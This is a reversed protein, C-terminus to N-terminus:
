SAEEADVATWRARRAAEIRRTADWADYPKAPYTRTCTPSGGAHVWEYRTLGQIELGDYVTSAALIPGFCHECLVGGDLPPVSELRRIM